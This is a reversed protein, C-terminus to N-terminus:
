LQVFNTVDGLFSYGEAEQIMTRNGGEVSIGSYFEEEAENLAQFLIIKM